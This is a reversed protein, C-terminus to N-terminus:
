GTLRGLLQAHDLHEERTVSHRGDVRGLTAALAASSTGIAEFGADALVLASVGDWANPMVLGGERTHLAMFKEYTESGPMDPRTEMSPLSTSSRRTSTTSTTPSFSFWPPPSSRSFTPTATDPRGCRPSTPM